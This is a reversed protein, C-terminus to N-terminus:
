KELEELRKQIEPIDKDSIYGWLIDAKKRHYDEASCYKADICTENFIGARTELVSEVQGNLENFIDQGKETYNITDYEDTYIYKKYNGKYREQMIWDAIDCTLEIYVDCSLPIKDKITM